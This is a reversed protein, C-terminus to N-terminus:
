NIDVVDSFNMRCPCMCGIVEHFKLVLSIPSIVEM